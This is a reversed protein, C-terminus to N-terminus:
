NFFVLQLFMPAKEKHFLSKEKEESGRHNLCNSWYVYKEYVNYKRIKTYM